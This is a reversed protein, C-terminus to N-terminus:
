KTAFDEAHETDIDLDDQESEKRDNSNSRAKELTEATNTKPYDRKMRDLVPGIMEPQNEIAVCLMRYLLSFPVPNTPKFSRNVFELSKKADGAFTYAIALSQRIRANHAEADPRDDTMELERCLYICSAVDGLRSYADLMTILTPIIPLHHDSIRKKLRHLHEINLIPGQMSALAVNVTMPSKVRSALTAFRHWANNDRGLGVEAIIMQELIHDNSQIGLQRMEAFHKEAVAYLGERNAATMLMTYMEASQKGGSDMYKTYWHHVDSYQGDFRNAYLKTVAYYTEHDPKPKQLVEMRAVLDMMSQKDNLLQFTYILHNYPATTKDSRTYERFHRMGTQHKGSMMYARIYALRIRPPMDRSDIVGKQEMSHVLLDIADIDGFIAYGEIVCEYTKQLPVLGIREMLRLVELSAACRQRTSLMSTISARNTQLAVVLFDFQKLTLISLSQPNSQKLRGFIRYALALNSSNNLLSSLLEATNVPESEANRSLIPLSALWSPDSSM